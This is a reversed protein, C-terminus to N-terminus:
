MLMNVSGWNQSAALTVTSNVSTATEMSTTSPMRSPKTMFWRKLPMPMMRSITNRGIISAGNTTPSNQRNMNSWVKPIM